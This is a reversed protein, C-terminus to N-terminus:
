NCRTIYDLYRKRNSTAAIHKKEEVMRMTIRIRPSGRSGIDTSGAAQDFCVIQKELATWCPCGKQKDV